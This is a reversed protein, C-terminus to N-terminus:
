RTGQEDSTNENSSALTSNRLALGVAYGKIAQDNQHVSIEEDGISLAMNTFLKNTITGDQSFDFPHYSDHSNHLTCLILVVHSYTTRRQICWKIRILHHM